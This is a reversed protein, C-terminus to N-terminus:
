HNENIKFRPCGIADELRVYSVGQSFFRIRPGTLDLDIEFLYKGNKGM